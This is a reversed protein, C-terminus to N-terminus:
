ARLLLAEFPLKHLAGDPVILLCQPAEESIRQRVRLPLLIDALLEPRQPPLPRAPDRSEHVLTRTPDFGRGAVQQLYTDVLARLVLRSLPVPDGSTSVRPPSTDTPRRPPLAPPAQTRAPQGGRARLQTDVLTLPKPRTVREAVEGPVTLPFAQAATQRGGVLLLYSRERGIYYVLLLKKQGLVDKRLSALDAATFEPQSLSRYVPNANLIDRYVKAYEQQAED